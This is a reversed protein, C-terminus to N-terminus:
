KRRMNLLSYVRPNLPSNVLIQLLSHFLQLVGSISWIWILSNCPQARTRTPQSNSKLTLKIQSDKARHKSCMWHLYIAKLM